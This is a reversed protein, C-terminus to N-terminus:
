KPYPGMGVFDSRKQLFDHCILKDQESSFKNHFNPTRWGLVNDGTPYVVMQSTQPTKPTSGVINRFKPPGFELFPRNESNHESAM